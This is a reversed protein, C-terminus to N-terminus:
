FAMVNGIAFLFTTTIVAPNLASGSGDSNGKSDDSGGPNDKTDDSGVSNGM